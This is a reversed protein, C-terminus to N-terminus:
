HAEFWNKGTGTSVEVPVRGLPLAEVMLKVVLEKLEELESKKAEFVLEDHVQLLMKSNLNRKKMENHINIMAIKLMDAATGQIPMNIAAREAGSKLNKNSSNILPFYKRRGSITEAYGSKMTEAITTDIYNKIGPYKEFYNTIIEQAEKRSISLRQALGFSGLGYMIGFNVTKAVRRKDSDVSDIPIDFLISATAAHIDKGEEFAKILNEDNCIHAMIRLEIQSYDASFMITDSSQSIFAKRIEKGLDSRIPINQLNPDTSSLRGTSAITQNYTTHIRGTKPNILKPLAEVYTSKLKAFQRYELVYEAIPFTVALYSLTDADTSWGTKTKKQSPLMMKEFLIHGLQKPSDINFDVGAEYYIKEKLIKVEETIKTDIIKLSSTDIAIGNSEMQILVEVLPFEINKAFDYLNHAKLEKELINKLKLALDADECAYDVIKDPSIDRMSIQNAKKDGILTEIPIPSYNLWNKSLADLNHQNDSNLVFSALMTDFAIPSVESGFRKLIYADFKINQGVKEINKNEFLKNLHKIAIEIPLSKEIREISNSQTQTEFLSNEFLNEESQNESYTSIYFAQNEKVSLSIGVVECSDRDLSSTEIDLSLVKFESLSKVLDILDKETYIHKYDLDLDALFKTRNEDEVLVPEEHIIEEFEENTIYKESYKNWKQRLTNFGMKKFFENLESFRPVSWKLDDYTENIPTDCDITVLEKSLFALERFEELKARVAKKEIGDINEYINELTSYEQVLPIATKEGIGPVGPINDASDGILALVDIVYQPEVGFKKYVELTDVIVFDENPKPSPKYLKVHPNVLQYYDKDNTLCVVDIGQASTKNALTGIIDDAEWGPLEIRKISILDLFEKIKPMQPILDEPFALRNAKYKEYKQHRFTPEATDFVVSIYEPEEKNLLNTIINVFAFVAFSPEGDPTKLGSNSMAHYARFVLSMGDILYLKKM